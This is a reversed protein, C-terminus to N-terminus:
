DDLPVVKFRKGCRPCRVTGVTEDAFFDGVSCGIVTAVAKARSILLCSGLQNIDKLM